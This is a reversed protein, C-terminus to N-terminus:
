TTTATAYALLQLEEEVQLSPVEMHWPDLGSFVLLLLFFACFNQAPVVGFYIYMQCILISMMM